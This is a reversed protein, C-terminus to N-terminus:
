RGRELQDIRDHDIGYYHAIEHWVTRKVQEYLDKEDRSVALLPNKFITITDSMIGSENGTRLTRPVGEYLGLLLSDGRLRLEEAQEPSPDDAVIINVNELAEIHDQSLESMARKIMDIFYEDSM